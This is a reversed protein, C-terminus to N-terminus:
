WNTLTEATEPKHCNHNFGRYVNTHLNKHPRINERPCISLFSIALDYSLHIHLKTLFQWVTEWRQQNRLFGTDPQLLKAKAHLVLKLMEQLVQRSVTIERPGKKPPPPDSFTILM